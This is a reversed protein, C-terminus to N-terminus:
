KTRPFEIIFESGSNVASTIRIEGGHKEILEKVLLLGLGSGKEDDTGSTSYTKEIKFLNKIQESSMGIGSDIVSIKTIGQLQETKIKVWGGAPTFKIANSTLNRIIVSLMNKDAFIASNRDIDYSFIIDKNAANPKLLDVVEEIVQYLDVKVPSFPINGTEYRFWDLLSDLLSHMNKAVNYISKVAELKENEEIGFYDDSLMSSYGIIASLPSRLDHSLISFLKNKAEINNQMERKGTELEEILQRTQILDKQRAHAIMIAREVNDPQAPKLIYAGVGAEAALEVLDKTEFATLIVVPTPIRKQIERAAEIGDLRPMKIDMLILDPKLSETLEIAKQGNPATGIHEHGIKNIIRIIEESVLFDDEAVLIRLKKNLEM